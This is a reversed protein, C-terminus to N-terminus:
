CPSAAFGGSPPWVWSRNVSYANAGATERAPETEPVPKSLIQPDSHPKGGNGLTSFQPQGQSKDPMTQSLAIQDSILPQSVVTAQHHQPASSITTAVSVTNERCQKEKHQDKMKKDLYDKQAELTQLREKLGALFGDGADGDPKMPAPSSPQQLLVDRSKCLPDKQKQPKENSPSKLPSLDLQPDPRTVSHSPPFHSHGFATHQFRSRHKDEQPKRGARELDCSAPQVRSEEAESRQEKIKNLLRKLTTEPKGEQSGQRQSRSVNTLEKLAPNLRPLSPVIVPSNETASTSDEGLSSLPVPDLTLSMDGSMNMQQMYMDEFAREMELQKDEKEEMRRDPPLFVQKPLKAVVGQRRRRDLRQQLSLDAMLADYEHKLKEKKLAENGRIRARIMQDHERKAKEELEERVRGDEGEGALKGDHQQEQPAREVAFEPIHYHTASFANLDTLPIPKSPKRTEGMVESVVDPAPPPRAAMEAARKKEQELASHRNRINKTDEYEKYAKDVALKRLAEQHRLDAKQKNELAVQHQQLHCISKDTVKARLHAQGVTRLTNEYQKELRMVEEQKENQLEEEVQKALKLLQREREQKVDNRIKAAASKAQERVQIIRLKRRRDTEERRLQEVENPSLRYRARSPGNLNKM